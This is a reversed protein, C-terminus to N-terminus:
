RRTDSLRGRDIHGQKVPGELRPRRASARGRPDDDDDIPAGNDILSNNAGSPNTIAQFIGVM